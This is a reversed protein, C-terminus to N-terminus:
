NIRANHNLCLNLADDPIRNGNDRRHIRPYRLWNEIAAIFITVHLSMACNSIVPIAIIALGPGPVKANLSSSSLCIFDFASPCPFYMKLNPQLNDAFSVALVILGATDVGM